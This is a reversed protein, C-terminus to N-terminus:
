PWRDAWYCRSEMLDPLSLSKRPKSRFLDMFIIGRVWGLLNLNIEDSTRRLATRNHLLAVVMTLLLDHITRNILPWEKLHRRTM